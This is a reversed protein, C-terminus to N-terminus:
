IQTFRRAMVLKWNGASQMSSASERPNIIKSGKFSNDCDSDNQVQRGQVQKLAPLNLIVMNGLLESDTFKDQSECLMLICECLFHSNTM